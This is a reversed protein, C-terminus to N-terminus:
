IPFLIEGCILHPQIEMYSFFRIARADGLVLTERQNSIGAALFKENKSSDSLSQKCYIISQIVSEYIELPDQEVFGPQPYYSKVLVTAKSIM